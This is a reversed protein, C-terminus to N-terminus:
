DLVQIRKLHIVQLKHYTRSRFIKDILSNSLNAM